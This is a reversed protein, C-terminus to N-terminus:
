QADHLRIECCCVTSILTAYLLHRSLLSSHFASIKCTDLMPRTSISSSLRGTSQDMQLCFITMSVHFFVGYSLVYVLTSQKSDDSSHAVVALHLFLVLHVTFRLYPDLFSVCPPIKLCVSFWCTSSSTFSRCTLCQFCATLLQNSPMHVNNFYLRGSARVVLESYM